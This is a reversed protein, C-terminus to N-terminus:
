VTYMGSFMDIHMLVNVCAHLDHSLEIASLSYKVQKFICRSSRQDIVIKAWSGCMCVLTAGTGLSTYMGSLMDIQIPVNVCAHVDHALEIYLVFHKVQKVFRRSRRQDVMIKELGGCMRVLIDGTGLSTYMGRFIDIYLLVNVCSHLDHSLEIASLSYKVQKFICRSSRQDVVIKAWSGCMCVLTAGTGPSTYMGSLMDIQIPVNVCAHVDHALEIYLVFHKVQKVFRRSRRQDVMIKELCGCMRVLIDGTGLRTYMGRFIDIHLLVNVCADLDHSLEIYWVSHKVQKFFRRSRRQDVMIKEWGGCMRVLIDGTGLSTYMGRFIDIHMVVNVCAHLDHSLETLLVPDKVQKFIRPSSRHDEMIKEWSGCMRVLTDVTGLSTFMGRFMDIHMLVNVCANPDHSLETLLVPDKVQKFIRPSSRHDVMIKEWSGCMRVLIAGTGLSTYMGRFIDIHMVVNVCARLDHSLETLLVPQKVQKFIRPSSRHDIMIKGWSGCMRVLLDGTGLSTCMGRFLTIHILVNVCAYLDRSLEALLVPDKVQKFIRSSSRHGVMIKEWSGCMRALIDGTALSTYIGRFIDIHMLVNVCAHLDHSLETLLVPDKM